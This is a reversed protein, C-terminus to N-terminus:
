CGTWEEEIKLDGVTNNESICKLQVEKGFTSFVIFPSFTQRHSFSEASKCINRIGSMQITALVIQKLKPINCFSMGPHGSHIHLIYLKKLWYWGFINLMGFM